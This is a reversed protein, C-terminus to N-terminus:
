PTTFVCIYSLHATTFFPPSCQQRRSVRSMRPGDAPRSLVVQAQYLGQLLKQGREMVQSVESRELVGLAQECVCVCVCLCVCVYVYVYVCVCVCGFASLCVCKILVSTSVTNDYCLKDSVVCFDM